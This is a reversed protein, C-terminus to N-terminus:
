DSILQYCQIQYTAKLQNPTLSSSFVSDIIDELPKQLQKQTVSQRLINKAIRKDINNDRLKAASEVMGSLADCLEIQATLTQTQGCLPVAILGLIAFKALTKM